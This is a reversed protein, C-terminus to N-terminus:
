GELRELEKLADRLRAAEEFREEEIATRLAKRTVIVSNEPMGELVDKGLAQLIRIEDSEEIAADGEPTGLEEFLAKLQMIGRNVHALAGAPKNESLAHHARARADMMVVYPRYTELCGRDEQELAHERCLDFIGLNQTTDHFASDYEELVFLDVFRRYYLSAEVQLAHCEQPSLSFGLTTGNRQEYEALRRRHFELLAEQAHPRAGDPRGQAEMQLIGLEVRMQIKVTGDVGLIKRVSIQEPDYHWDRLTAQLDIYCM